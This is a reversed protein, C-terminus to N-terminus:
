ASLFERAALAPSGEFEGNEAIAQLPKTVWEKGSQLQEGMVKVVGYWNKKYMSANENARRFDAIEELIRKAATDSDIKSLTKIVEQQIQINVDCILSQVLVFVDGSGGIFGLLKACLSRIEMRQDKLYQTLRNRAFSLISRDEIQECIEEFAVLANKRLGYTELVKFNMVAKAIAPLKLKLDRAKILAILGSLAKARVQNDKNELGELFIDAIEGPDERFDGAIVRDVLRALEILKDTM